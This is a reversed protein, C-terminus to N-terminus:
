CENLVFKEILNACFELAMLAGTHFELAGAHFENNKKAVHYQVERDITKKITEIRGKIEDIENM